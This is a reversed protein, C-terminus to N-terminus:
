LASLHLPKSFKYYSIVSSPQLYVIYAITYRLLICAIFIASHNQCVRPMIEGSYEIESYELNKDNIYKYKHMLMPVPTMYELVLVSHMTDALNGVLATVTFLLGGDSHIYYSGAYTVILGVFLVIMERLVRVRTGRHIEIRRRKEMIGDVSRM